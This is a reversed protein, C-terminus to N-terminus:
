LKKVVSRMIDRLARCKVAVCRYLGFKEAKSLHTLNDLRVEEICRGNARAHRSILTEMGFGSSSLDPISCIFDRSAVRLGSLFPMTRHLVDDSFVGVAMDARRALVPELLREIHVATLGLVDADMFLLIEADTVRIGELLAAAKGMNRELIVVRTAEGRAALATSDESGDDVVIIEDIISVSRIAKLVYGITRAENYAPIIAAVATM